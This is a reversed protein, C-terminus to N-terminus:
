HGAAQSPDVKRRPKPALWMVLCSAFLIAAVGQFIHNVALLSSQSQVMTTLQTTIQEPSFGSAGLQSTAAGFRDTVGALETQNMTTRDSWQSTILATAFAGSLTRAFSMLGAASATEGHAVSSLAMGSLPVFFFPMGIGQILIPWAVQWYTMEVTNISRLFMVMALWGVGFSVLIRPDVRSSLKAAVPASFVALVGTMGMVSGAWTATYGMYTQLWLPTLVAAGFFGGFTLCLVTVPVTFGRHRFVHLDVIPHADTLEWILFAIFGIVSVLAMAIVVPSDFWGLESGKDMIFQFCGVWIALLVFGIYDIPNKRMPTEFNKLIQWGFFSCALAIPVNILFIFPWSWADCIYGGVIPGLIPAVLTTMSWIAMATGMKEKPFIRMLLTQSLPMLPGGAIGQFIRAMVLMDLSQAMGCLASFIGFMLIAWTFLKVTGFRGALWGTLPVTIAEAVQYSTIVYTGQNPAIALSGAIHPVSVNAVTTDLVVVFNICALTIAALYLEAGQLQPINEAARSTM